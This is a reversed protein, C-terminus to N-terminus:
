NTITILTLLSSVNLDYIKRCKDKPTEPVRSEHSAEKRLSREMHTTWPSDLVKQTGAGQPREWPDTRPGRRYMIWVESIADRKALKICVIDLDVM